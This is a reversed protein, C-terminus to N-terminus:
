IRACFFLIENLAAPLLISSETTTYDFMRSSKCRPRRRQWNGSARKSVMGQPVTTSASVPSRIDEKVVEAEAGIRDSAVNQYIRPLCTFRAEFRRM